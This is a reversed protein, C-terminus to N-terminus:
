TPEASSQASMTIPNTDSCSAASRRASSAARRRGEFSRREAAPVRRHKRVLLVVRAPPPLELIGHELLELVRREVGIAVDAGRERAEILRAGDEVFIAAPAIRRNRGAREDVDALLRLRPEDVLRDPDVGVAGAEVRGPLEIQEAADPRRDGGRRGVGLAELGREGAHADADGGLHRQVVELQAADLLLQRHEIAAERVLALRQSQGLHAAVRAKALFLVDGTGRGADGRDFRRHRRQARREGGAFM